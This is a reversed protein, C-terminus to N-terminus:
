LGITSADVKREVVQGVIMMVAMMAVIMLEM